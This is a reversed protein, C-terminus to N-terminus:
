LKEMSLMLKFALKEHESNITDTIEGMLGLSELKDMMKNSIVIMNFLISATKQPPMSAILKIFGSGYVKTGM